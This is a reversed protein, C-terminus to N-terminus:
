SKANKSEEREMEQIQEIASYMMGGIFKFCGERVRQYYLEQYEEPICDIGSGVCGMVFDLDDPLADAAM